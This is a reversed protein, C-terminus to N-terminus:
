APDGPMNPERGPPITNIYATTLDFPLHAGARRALEVLKDLLFHAREAGERDIVAALSELWERTEEPYQDRSDPYQDVM